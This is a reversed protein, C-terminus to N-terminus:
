KQDRVSLVGHAVRPRKCREDDSARRVKKEGHREM